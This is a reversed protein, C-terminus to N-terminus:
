IRLLVMLIFQSGIESYKKSLFEIGTETQSMLTKEPLCHIIRWWLKTGAKLEM